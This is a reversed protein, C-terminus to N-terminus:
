FFYYYHHIREKGNKIFNTSYNPLAAWIPFSIHRYLQTSTWSNFNYITIKKIIAHSDHAFGRVTRKTYYKILVKLFKSDLYQASHWLVQSFGHVYM